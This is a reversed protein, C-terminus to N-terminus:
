SDMVFVLMYWLNCSVIFFFIVVLACCTNYVMVFIYLYIYIYIDDWMPINHRCMFCFICISVYLKIATSGRCYKKEKSFLLQLFLSLFPSLHQLPYQVSFHSLSSPPSLSSFIPYVNPYFMSITKSSSLSSIRLINLWVSSSTSSYFLIPSFVFFYYPVCPVFHIM